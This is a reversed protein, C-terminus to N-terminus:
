QFHEHMGVLNLNSLVSEFNIRIIRCGNLNRIHKKEVTKVSYYFSCFKNEKEM